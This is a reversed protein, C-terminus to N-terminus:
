PDLARLPLLSIIVTGTQCGLFLVSLLSAPCVPALLARDCQFDPTQSRTRVRRILALAFSEKFFYVFFGKRVRIQLIRKKKNIASQDVLGFM